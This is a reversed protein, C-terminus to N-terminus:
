MWHGHARQEEQLERRERDRRRVRERLAEVRDAGSTEPPAAPQLALRQRWAEHFAAERALLDNRALAADRRRARVRRDAAASPEYGLTSSAGLWLQSSSSASSATSSLLPTAPTTM